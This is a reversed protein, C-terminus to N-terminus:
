DVENYKRIQKIIACRFFHSIDKYLDPNEKVIDMIQEHEITRLKVTIQKDMALTM